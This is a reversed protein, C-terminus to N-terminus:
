LGFSQIGFTVLSFVDVSFFYVLLFGAILFPAFPIESKITLRKRLFPIRFQGRRGIRQLVMLFVSCLAGIWFSFIICSLIGPFSLIFGFPLALKADGLGIWRGKSVFWLTAFFFFGVAAGLAHFALSEWEFPYIFRYVGMLLAIGGIAWVCEDPIIMHVIDYIFIVVLLSMLLLSLIRLVGDSICVATIGFLLGTLVEVSVYRLSIRATCFFCRARLLVFSLVPILQWWLLHSGCSMCHSRGGLSRGTHLRYIVVNLFSGVLLGLLVFWAIVIGEIM